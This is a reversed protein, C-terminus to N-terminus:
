FSRIFAFTRADQPNEFFAQTEAEEVIRGAEMFVTRDAVRRAQNLNHSVLVISFEDKLEVLLDEIKGTSVPDLSSTPEDLLLVEPQVAITRAICLRQQQGGSLSTGPRDLKGEVESWLAAKELAWRVRDRLEARGLAYHRRLAFAVNEFISMPFPTPKQFVMGVRLRLDNLDVESALINRGEVLIEGTARQEPYLEFIRNFTRILTSKGSGSPGLLATIRKDQFRIDIDHLSRAPGYFFNLKRVDIAAGDRTM